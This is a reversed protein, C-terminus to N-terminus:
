ASLVFNTTHLKVVKDEWPKRTQALEIFLGQETCKFHLRDNALLSLIGLVRMTLVYTQSKHTLVVGNARAEVWWIIILCCDGIAYFCIENITESVGYSSSPLLKM